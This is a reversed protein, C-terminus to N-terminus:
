WRSPQFKTVVNPTIGILQAKSVLFAIVLVVELKGIGEGRMPLGKDLHAVNFIEGSGLM